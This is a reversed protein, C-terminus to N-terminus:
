MNRLKVSLEYAIPLATHWKSEIQKQSANEVKLVPAFPETHGKEPLFRRVPFGPRTTPLLEVPIETQQLLQAVLM